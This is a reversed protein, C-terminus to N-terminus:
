RDIWELMIIQFSCYGRSLLSVFGTKPYPLIGIIGVNEEVYHILEYNRTM